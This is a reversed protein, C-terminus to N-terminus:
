IGDCPAKPSPPLPHASVHLLHHSPLQTPTHFHHVRLSSWPPWSGLLALRQQFGLLLSGLGLGLGLGAGEATAWCKQKQPEAGAACMEGCQGLLVSVRLGCTSRHLSETM